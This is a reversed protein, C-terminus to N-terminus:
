SRWMSLRSCPWITGRLSCSACIWTPEGTAGRGVVVDISLSVTTTSRGCPSLQYFSQGMLITVDGWWQARERDPCDFYNDRMNVYLTRMAKQWFRNVISDSCTFSGEFDCNYGTERYGISHVTIGADKPYIIRLVDGNMWGLSEYQQKGRKTIYEAWVCDQSGGRVHDTEIRIPTGEAEATLNLTPTMQM